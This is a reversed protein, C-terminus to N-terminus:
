GEVDGAGVGFVGGDGCRAIHATQGAAHTTRTADVAATDEIGVKFARHRQRAAAFDVVPPQRAVHHRASPEAVTVVVDVGAGNISVFHHGGPPEEASLVVCPRRRSDVRVVANWEGINATIQRM